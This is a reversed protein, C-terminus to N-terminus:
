FTFATIYYFKERNIRSAPIAKTCCCTAVSVEGSFLSASKDLAASYLGWSLWDLGLTVYYLSTGAWVYLLCSCFAENSDSNFSILEFVDRSDSHVVEDGTEERRYLEWALGEGDGPLPAPCACGLDLDSLLWLFFCVNLCRFLLCDENSFTLYPRSLRCGSSSPVPFTDTTGGRISSAKM